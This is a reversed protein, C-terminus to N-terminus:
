TTRPTLPASLEAPQILAGPQRYYAAIKAVDPPLPFYSHWIKIPGVFNRDVPYRFNWNRPLVFPSIGVRNVAESFSAQDNAPRIAVKGEHALLVSSDLEPALKQWWDFVPKAAETFFLVGTSYDIMDGRDALGKYYRAWPYESITCALGFRQAQIFGFDLRELVITDADLFVTEAFPTRDFMAAKELLSQLTNPDASLRVVEVPLEPHVAKLSALSRQLVPEIEQGWVMYLAGRGSKAM